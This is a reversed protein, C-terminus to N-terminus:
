AMFADGTAGAEIVESWREMAREDRAAAPLRCRDGENSLVALRPM